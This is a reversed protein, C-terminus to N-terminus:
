AERKLVAVMHNLPMAPTFSVLEWGQTGLTNLEAEVEASQFAGMLSPKFEIVQYQWRSSM